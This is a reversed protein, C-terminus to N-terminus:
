ATLVKHTLNSYSEVVDTQFIDRSEKHEKKLEQNEFCNQTKRCRFSSQIKSNSDIEIEPKNQNSLKAWTQRTAIRLLNNGHHTLVLILLVTSKDCFGAALEQLVVYNNVHVDSAALEYYQAM